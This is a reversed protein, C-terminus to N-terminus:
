SNGAAEPFTQFGWGVRVFHQDATLVDSMKMEKMIVMSTLDTFSIKPKDEFSKRLAFAQRFRAETVSEITVYPSHLIASIFRWAEDFPRRLFLLTITEDLVFNSTLVQGAVKARERYCESASQHLPDKRDALVLWGWTDIFLKL